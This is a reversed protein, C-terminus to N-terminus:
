FPYFFLHNTKPCTGLVFAHTFLKHVIGGKEPITTLFLPRQLLLLWLPHPHINDLIHTPLLPHPMFSLIHYSDKKKCCQSIHIFPYLYDTWTVCHLFLTKYDTHIRRFKQFLYQSKLVRFRTQRFFIHMRMAHCTCTLTSM